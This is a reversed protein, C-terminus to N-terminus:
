GYKEKLWESIKMVLSDSAPSLSVVMFGSWNDWDISVSGHASSFSQFKEDLGRTYDSSKKLNFNRCIRWCVFRYKLSPMDEIAVTLRGSFDRYEALKM